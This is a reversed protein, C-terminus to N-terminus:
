FVAESDNRDLRAREVVVKVGKARSGESAEAEEVSEGNREKQILGLM